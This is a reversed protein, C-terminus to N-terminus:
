WQLTMHDSPQTSLSGIDRQPRFPGRITNNHAPEAHDFITMPVNGALDSYVSGDPDPRSIPVPSVNHYISPQQSDEADQSAPGPQAQFSVTAPVTPHQDQTATPVAPATAPSRISSAHDVVQRRVGTRLGLTLSSIWSLLSEEDEGSITSPPDAM